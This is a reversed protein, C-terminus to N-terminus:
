DVGDVYDEDLFVDDGFAVYDTFGDDELGLNEFGHYVAGGGGAGFDAVDGGGDL